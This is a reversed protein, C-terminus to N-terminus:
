EAAQKGVAEHFVTTFFDRTSPSCGIHLSDRGEDIFGLYGDWGLDDLVFRLCELEGPPLGSYDIDFVQGSSHALSERGADRATDQSEVLSIVPLPLFKEGKPKLAEHLRRTEFAIYM